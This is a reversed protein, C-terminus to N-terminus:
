EISYYFSTYLVTIIRLREVYYIFQIKQATKGGNWNKTLFLEIYGCMKRNRRRRNKVLLFIRKTHADDIFQKYTLADVM